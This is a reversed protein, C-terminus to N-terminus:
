ASCPSCAEWLSMELVRHSDSIYLANIICKNNVICKNYADCERSIWFVYWHRMYKLKLM